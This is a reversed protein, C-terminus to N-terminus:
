EYDTTPMNYQKMTYLLKCGKISPVSDESILDSESRKISGKPKTYGKRLKPNSTDDEGGEDKIESSISNFLVKSYESAGM